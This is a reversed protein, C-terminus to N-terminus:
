EIGGVGAMLGVGIAAAIVMAITTASQRGARRQRYDRPDIWRRRGRGGFRGHVVTDPRFHKTM